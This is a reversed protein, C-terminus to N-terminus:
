FGSISRFHCRDRAQDMPGVLAVLYYGDQLAEVDNISPPQVSGNWSRYGITDASELETIRGFISRSLLNPNPIVAPYQPGYDHIFTANTENIEVLDKPVLFLPGAPSVMIASTATGVTDDQGATAPAAPIVIIGLFLLWLGLIRRLKLVAETAKNMMCRGSLLFSRLNWQLAFKVVSMM